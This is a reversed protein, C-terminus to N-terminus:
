LSPPWHCRWTSQRWPSSSSPPLDVSAFMLNVMKQTERGSCELLLARTYQGIREEIWAAAQIYGSSIASVCFDVAAMFFQKITPSLLSHSSFPQKNADTRNWITEVLWTCSSVNLNFHFLGPQAALNTPADDWHGLTTHEM